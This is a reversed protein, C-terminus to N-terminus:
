RNLRVQRRIIDRPDEMDTIGYYEQCRDMPYFIADVISEPTLDEAILSELDTFIRIFTQTNKENCDVMSQLADADSAFEAIEAGFRQATQHHAVSIKKELLLRDFFEPANM